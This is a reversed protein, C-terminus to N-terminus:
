IKANGWEINGSDHLEKWMFRSFLMTQPILTHSPDYFNHLLSCLMRKTLSVTEFHKEAEDYNNLIVKQNTKRQYAAKKSKIKYNWQTLTRGLQTVSTLETEDKQILPEDDVTQNKQLQHIEKHTDSILPRKRTTKVSIAEKPM